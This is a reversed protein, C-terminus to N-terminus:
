ALDHVMRVIREASAEASLSTTDLYVADDARILPAEARTRDQHDRESVEARIDEISVQLGRGVLEAHRRRAREDVSADLYIKLDADPLVVSGIDRGDMVVGGSRALARQRDLLAARVEPHIAVDSAGMGVAETRILESWDEGNILIRLADGDWSFQFDLGTTLAGLAQADGLKMGRAQAAYAVSRYMAGTDIYAYGLTKAVVRAVTGKGSSAPGDIAITIREPV